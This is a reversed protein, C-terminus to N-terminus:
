LTQGPGENRHSALTGHLQNRSGVRSRGARVDALLGDLTGCQQGRGWLM